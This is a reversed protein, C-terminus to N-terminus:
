PALAIFNLHLSRAERIDGAILADADLYVASGLHAFDHAIVFSPAACVSVGHLPRTRNHVSLRVLSQPLHRLHLEREASRARALAHAGDYFLHVHVGATSSAALGKQISRVVHAADGADTCSAIFVHLPSIPDHM